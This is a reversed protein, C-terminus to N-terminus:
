YFFAKITNRQEGKLIFVSDIDELVSEIASDVCRMEGAAAKNTSFSHFNSQYSCSKNPYLLYTFNIQIAGRVSLIVFHKM